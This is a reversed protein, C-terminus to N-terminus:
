QGAARVEELKRAYEKMLGKYAAGEFDLGHRQGTVRDLVYFSYVYEGDSVRIVPNFTFRYAEKDAYADTFLESKEIVKFPGHYHEAFVDALAKNVQKYTSRLVLLTGPAKGFDPPVADQDRLARQATSVSAALAFLALLLTRYFSPM